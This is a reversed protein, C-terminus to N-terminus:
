ANAHLPHPFGRLMESATVWENSSRIMDHICTNTAVAASVQEPPNDPSQLQLNVHPGTYGRSGAMGGSTAPSSCVTPPSNSAELPTTGVM